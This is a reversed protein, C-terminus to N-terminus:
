ERIEFRQEAVPPVRFPHSRKPEEKIEWLRLAPESAAASRAKGRIVETSAPKPGESEPASVTERGDSWCGRRHVKYCCLSLKAKRKASSDLSHRLTM